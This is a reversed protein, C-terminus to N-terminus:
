ERASKKARAKNTDDLYLYTVFNIISISTYTGFATSVPPYDTGFVIGIVMWILSFWLLLVAAKLSSKYNDNLLTKFQLISMIFILVWVWISSMYIFNRYPYHKDIVGNNIIFMGSFTFGILSNALEIPKTRRGTFVWNAFTQPSNCVSDFTSKIKAKM